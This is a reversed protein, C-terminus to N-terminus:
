ADMLAQRTVSRMHKLAWDHGSYYDLQWLVDEIALLAEKLRSGRMSDGGGTHTVKNRAQIVKRLEDLITKPPSLTKDKIKLRTPLKPLYEELMRVVPPSPANEVLWECDPVLKAVLEKFGIELASVGILLASRPASSRLGWAERFLEHCLPEEEGSELLNALVNSREVTLDFVITLGDVEMHRQAGHVEPLGSNRNLRGGWETM